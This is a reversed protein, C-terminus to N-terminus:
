RVQIKKGLKLFLQQQELKWSKLILMTDKDLTIVRQSAKSKPTQIVMKYGEGISLTKNINIENNEFDVDSWTLARLEGSRMGSYIFLRFTALWRTSDEESIVKLLKNVQDKDYFKLGENTSEKAKPYDLFDTPNKDILELKYAKDFVKNMYNVIHAKYNVFQKAWMNVLEQLQFKTIEDIKKDGLVPLIHNEFAKTTKQITSEKVDGQKYQDLWIEYVELFTISDEEKIPNNEILYAEILKAEKLTAIGRRKSQRRKGLKNYGHHVQVTYTGNAQKQISM